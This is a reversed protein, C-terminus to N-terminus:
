NPGPRPEATSSQVQSELASLRAQIANQGDLRLRESADRTTELRDVRGLVSRLASADRREGEEQRTEVGLLRALLDSEVQTRQSESQSQRAEVNFLRQALEELHRAPAPGGGPAPRSPPPPREAEFRARLADIERSIEQIRHALQQLADTGERAAASTPGSRTALEARLAALEGGIVEIQATAAPPGSAPREDVRAPWLSLGLALLVAAVLAAGAPGSLAHRRVFRRLTAAEAPSLAVETRGRESSDSAAM